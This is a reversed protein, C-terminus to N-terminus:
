LHKLSLIYNHRFMKWDTPLRRGSKLLWHTLIEYVFHETHELTTSDQDNADAGLLRLYLVWDYEDHDISLEHEVQRQYDALYEGSFQRYYSKLYKYPLDITMDSHFLIADHIELLDFHFSATLTFTASKFHKPNNMTIYVIPMEAKPRKKKFLSFLLFFEAYSLFVGM